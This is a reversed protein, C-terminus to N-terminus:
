LSTAVIEGKKVEKKSSGGLFVWYLSYLVRGQLNM